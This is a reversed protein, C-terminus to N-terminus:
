LKTKLNKNGNGTFSFSVRRNLRRGEPNDTGGPLTNMKVPDNEGKGSVTIRSKSIGKDILYNLVTEARRESLDKNYLSSGINDTYGNIQIQVSPYYTLAEILTDMSIKSNQDLSYSNFSFFVPLIMYVPHGAITRVPSINVFIKNVSLVKHSISLIKTKPLIDGGTIIITYKGEPLRLNFIGNEDPTLPPLYSKGSDDIIQVELKNFIIRTSDEPILQINVPFYQPHISKVTGAMFIRKESPLSSDTKSIFGLTDGQWPLFFLDDDTTNIPYGTNIAQTFSDSEHVPVSFVDYGGMTQHGKSSFFLTDETKNLFPSAEDDKTNVGSGLNKIRNWKGNGDSELRYIDFGGKGGIRDSVIYLYKGNTTCVAHTENFITNARGKLPIAKSWRGKQLLSVFIDDDGQEQNILYLTKGDYSVSSVLYDGDSEIETSINRPITWEGNVKKSYYVAIYDKRKANFVISNADFSLAANFNFSDPTNVPFKIFNINLPSNKLARAYQYQHIRTAAVEKNKKLKSKSKYQHYYKSAKELENNKLYADGLYLFAKVPAKKEKFSFENNYKKTTKESARLLFLISQEKKGPIHLCTIGTKYNINANKLGHDLLYLYITLAKEYKHNTELFGARYYLREMESKDQGFM